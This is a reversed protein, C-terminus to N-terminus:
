RGCLSEQRQQLGDDLWAKLDLGLRNQPNARHQRDGGVRVGPLDPLFILSAQWLVFAKSDHISQKAPGLAVPPNGM